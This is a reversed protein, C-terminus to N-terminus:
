RGQQPKGGICWDIRGDNIWFHCGCDNLQHVSPKVTPRRWFDSVVSWRPRRTPNLSLSINKGCGGPCSLCAWKEVPGDRVVLLEGSPITVGTPFTSTTSTLLDFRLIGWTRLLRAIFKLM